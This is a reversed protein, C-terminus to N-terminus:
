LRVDARSARDNERGMKRPVFGDRIRRLQRADAVRVARLEPADGHVPHEDIPLAERKVLGVDRSSRIPVDHGREIGPRGERAQGGRGDVGDITADRSRDVMRVDARPKNRAVSARVDSEYEPSHLLVLRTKGPTRICGGEDDRVWGLPRCNGTCGTSKVNGKAAVSATLSLQSVSM